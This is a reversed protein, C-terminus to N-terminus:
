NQDLNLLETKQFVNFDLASVALLHNNQENTNSQTSFITVGSSVVAVMALAGAIFGPHSFLNLLWDWASQGSKLSSLRIRRLVNQEVSDPCDPVGFQKAKKIFNELPDDNM